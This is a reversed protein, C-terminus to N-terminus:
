CPLIGNRSRPSGTVASVRLIDSAFHSDVSAGVDYTADEVTIPGALEATSTRAIDFLSTELFFDDDLKAGLTVDFSTADTTFGLDDELSIRTGNAADPLSLSLETEAKPMYVGAELWFRPHPDIAQAHVMGASTAAFVGAEAQWNGTM